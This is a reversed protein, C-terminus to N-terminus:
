SGFGLEKLFADVAANKADHDPAAKIQTLKQEAQIKEQCPDCLRVKTPAMDRFVTREWTAHGGCMKCRM